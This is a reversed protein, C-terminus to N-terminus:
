KASEVYLWHDGFVAKVRFRKKIFLFGGEGEFLIEKLVWSGDPRTEYLSSSSLRKAGRPLPDRTSDLRLPHGSEEDIWATGRVTYPKTKAGSEDRRLYAFEFVACGRGGINERKGTDVAQIDKQVEASFPSDNSSFSYTRKENKGPGRKEEQAERKKRQDAYEKQREATLDKGDKVVSLIKTKIGDKDTGDPSFRFRSETRSKVSGDAGLEETTQTMSGPIINKNTEFVAVAKTWLSPIVNQLPRGAALVVSLSFGFTVALLLSPWNRKKM